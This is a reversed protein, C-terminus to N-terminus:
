PRKNLQDKLEDIEEPTTTGLQRESIPTKETKPITRTAVPGALKARKPVFNSTKYEKTAHQKLDVTGHRLRKQKLMKQDLPTTTIPSTPSQYMKEPLTSLNLTKQDVTKRSVDAEKTPDIRKLVQAPGAQALILATLIVLWTKM